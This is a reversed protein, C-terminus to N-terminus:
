LCFLVYATHILSCLNDISYDTENRAQIRKVLYCGIQRADSSPIKEDWSRLVYKILTVYSPLQLRPNSQVVFDHFPKCKESHLQAAVNISKIIESKSPNSM